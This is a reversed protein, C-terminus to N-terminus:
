FSFLIPCTGTCTCSFHHNVVNSTSWIQKNCKWVTGSRDITYHCLLWVRLHWTFTGVGASILKKINKWGRLKVPGGGRKNIMWTRFYIVPWLLFLWHEALVKRKRAHMKPAFNGALFRVGCCLRGDYRTIGAKNGKWINFKESIEWGWNIKVGGGGGRKKPM